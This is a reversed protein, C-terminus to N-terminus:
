ASVMQEIYKKLSQNIFSGWGEEFNKRALDLNQPFTELGEHTVRLRTLPGEKSKEAFLEFTVLSNGEYGDYRWTYAIKKDPVVETVRCLHRFQNEKTKGATFEFEYGVVPRFDPLNFYWQKMEQGDTLARWLREAAVPFTREVIVPTNM